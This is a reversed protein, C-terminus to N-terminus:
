SRDAIVPQRRVTPLPRILGTLESKEVGEKGSFLTCRHRSSWWRSEVGPLASRTPRYDGAPGDRGLRCFARGADQWLVEVSDSEWGAGFLASAKM